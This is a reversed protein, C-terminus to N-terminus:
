PISGDVPGLDGCWCPRAYGRSARRGTSGRAKPGHRRLPSPRHMLMCVEHARLMQPCGMHGPRAGGTWSVKSLCLAKGM